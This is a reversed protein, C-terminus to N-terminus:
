FLDEQKWECTFGCDGPMDRSFNGRDPALEDLFVPGDKDKLIAHGIRRETAAMKKFQEPFDVRIANWYGMGGKVCGVCNNNSYGLRYMTPVKLGVDQLWEICESKTIGKDLLLFDANVSNNADIFRNARDEEEATYGFVQVDDPRQYAKRVEKKLLRTCPAGHPGKIFKVSNIVDYVSGNYKDNQLMHIHVGFKQEYQNLFAINDEHEEAVRCYAAHIEGYKQKALYTAYASAAGCSFWCLVRSM